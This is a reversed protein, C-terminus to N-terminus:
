SSPDLGDTMEAIKRRWNPDTKDLYGTLIKVRAQEKELDTMQPFDKGPFNIIQGM